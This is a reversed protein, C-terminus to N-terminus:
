VSPFFNGFVNAAAAGACDSAAQSGGLVALQGGRPNRSSPDSDHLRVCRAAALLRWHAYQSGYVVSLSRVFGALRRRELLDSLKEPKLKLVLKLLLNWDELRLSAQECRCGFDTLRQSAGCLDVLQVEKDNGEDAGNTAPRAGNAGLNSLV